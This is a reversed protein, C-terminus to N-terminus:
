DRFGGFLGRAPRVCLLHESFIQAILHMKNLAAGQGWLELVRTNALAQPM